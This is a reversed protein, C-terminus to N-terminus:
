IFYIFELINGIFLGAKAKHNSVIGRQDKGAPLINFKVICASATECDKGTKDIIDLITSVFL